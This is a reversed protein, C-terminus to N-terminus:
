DGDGSITYRGDDVPLARLLVSGKKGGEFYQGCCGCRVSKDKTGKDTVAANLLLSEFEPGGIRTHVSM